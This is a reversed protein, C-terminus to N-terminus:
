AGEKSQKQRENGHDVYQFTLLLFLVIGILYSWVTFLANRWWGKIIFVFLAMCVVAILIGWVISSFSFQIIDILAGM